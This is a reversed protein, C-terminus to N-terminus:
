AGGGHRPANRFEEEADVVSQADSRSMGDAEYRRVRQEYGFELAEDDELALCSHVTIGLDSLWSECEDHLACEVCEEAAEHENLLKAAAFESVEVVMEIHIFQGM